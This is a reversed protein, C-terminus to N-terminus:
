IVEAVDDNVSSGLSILEISTRSDLVKSMAM